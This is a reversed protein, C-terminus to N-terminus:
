GEFSYFDYFVGEGLSFQDSLLHFDNWLSHNDSWFSRFDGGFLTFKVKVSSM